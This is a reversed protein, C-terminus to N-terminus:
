ETYSQSTIVWIDGDYDWGIDFLRLIDRVRFYNNDGILYARVEVKVGDKFFNMTTNLTAPKPLGDGPIMEQGVVTYARNSTLIAEGNIFEANFQKETGSLVFAMDRLKFYNEDNMMYADFATPVNNIYVTSRTPTATPVPPQQPQVVPPPPPPTYGLPNSLVLFDHGTSVLAHGEKFPAAFSYRFPIVTKGTKDIYGVSDGNRHIACLGEHFSIEDPVWGVFNTDPIVMKGSKDIFGYKDGKLSVAALGESFTKADAYQPEIAWQGTADIYGWKNTTIDRAAAFGESFLKINFYNFYQVTKNFNGNTDLVGYNQDYPDDPGPKNIYVLGDSFRTDSWISIGTIIMDGNKNIFGQKRSANEQVAALGGSFSSGVGYKFPLVVKGTTDIYGWAGLSGDEKYFVAALGESFPRADDYKAEIVIDWNKNRYGYKYISRSTDVEVRFLILGDSFYSNTFSENGMNRVLKGDFDYIKGYHNSFGEHFLMAMKYNGQYSAYYGASGPICLVGFALVLALSISLIKKLM